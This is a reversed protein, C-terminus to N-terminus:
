SHCYSGQIVDGEIEFSLICIVKVSETRLVCEEKIILAKESSDNVNIHLLPTEEGRPHKMLLMSCLGLSANPNFHSYATTIM